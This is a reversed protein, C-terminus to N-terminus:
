KACTKFIIEKIKVNKEPWLLSCILSVASVSDASVPANSYLVATHHIWIHVCVCVCSKHQECCHLNTSDETDEVSFVTTTHEWFVIIWGASKV